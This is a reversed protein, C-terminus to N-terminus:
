EKKTTAGSHPGVIYLPSSRHSVMKKMADVSSGIETIAPIISAKKPNAKEEKLSLCRPTRMDHKASQNRIDDMRGEM